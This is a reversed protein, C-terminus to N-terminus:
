SQSEAAPRHGTVVFGGVALVLAVLGAGAVLLATSFLGALRVGVAVQTHVGAKGDARLVAVGYHGNRTPWALSVPAGGEQQAKAVWFDLRGPAVVSTAGSVERLQVADPWRVATVETRGASGLYDVLEVERAVGVFLSGSAPDAPEAELHLTPGFASILGPQTVLAVGGSDVRHRAVTVIDDRGVVAAAAGGVVLALLGATGAVLAFVRVAVRVGARSMVDQEMVDREM